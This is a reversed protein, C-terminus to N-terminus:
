NEQIRDLEDADARDKPRSSERKARLLDRLSVYRTRVGGIEGDVAGDLIERTPQTSMSTLLDVQNPQVGLTVASGEKEFAERPVGCDGFGFEELAALVRTANESSPLILIDVDVTLRPYGYFAVAHGGCIAFEVGHKKLLRILESVDDHIHSM